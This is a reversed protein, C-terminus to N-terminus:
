WLTPSLMKSLVTFSMAIMSVLGMGCGFGAFFVTIYRLWMDKYKRKFYFRGVFAGLIACFMAGPSNQALGWVMGYVLMVPLGFASLVTFLTLGSTLGWVAYNLHLSELFLSGGDLTSTKMLCWNRLNFEWMLQTYPYSASPVPAMRWLIESTLFSAVITIPLVTLLVKVTSIMKVGCLEMVRFGVTAPGLNSIPLPAFWIDVGKHGTMLITMEKLYPIDVAQGCLGELRASAYSILPNYVFAYLTMIIWPYGPVLFVGLLIWSFTTCLYIAISIWISFDGRARNNTILIRWGERFSQSLPKRHSLEYARPRFRNRIIGAVFVGLQGFTVAFTLGIGFSLYFDITNVFATDVYGMDPRWNALIGMRHLIPNATWTALLGFLGGMVGWFPTIMGGFFAGLNIVLNFPVAPLLTSVQRTLDIFVLPILEVRKPLLAQTIMPVCVYILGWVMGIMGGIAFARWRWRNEEGRDTSLAVIGAASVPAFPFPLKEVDSTLRYLLYGLGYNSISGVIIGFITLGIIPLWCPAMFTRGAALVDAAKPVAWRPLEAALGLGQVYESTSVYQTWLYGSFPDGLACGTM